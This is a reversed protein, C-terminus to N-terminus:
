RPAVDDTPSYVIGNIRITLGFRLLVESEWNITLQANRSIRLEAWGNSDRIM